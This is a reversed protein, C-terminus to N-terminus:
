CYVSSSTPFENTNYNLWQPILSQTQNESTETRHSLLYPSRESFTYFAKLENSHLKLQSNSASFEDKEKEVKHLETLLM